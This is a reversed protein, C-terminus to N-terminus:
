HSQLIEDHDLILGVKVPVRISRSLCLTLLLDISSISPSVMDHDIFLSPDQESNELKVAMKGPSNVQVGLSQFLDGFDSCCLVPTVSVFNQPERTSFTALRFCFLCFPVCANELSKRNHIRQQQPKRKQFQKKRLFAEFSGMASPTPSDVETNGIVFAEWNRALQEPSLFFRRTFVTMKAACVPDDLPQRIKAFEEKLSQKASTPDENMIMSKHLSKSFAFKIGEGFTKHNQDAKRSFNASSFFNSPFFRFMVTTVIMRTNSCHSKLFNKNTREWLKISRTQPTHHEFPEALGVKSLDVVLTSCSLAQSPLELQDYVTQKVKLNQTGCSLLLLRRSADLCQKKRPKRTMTTVM